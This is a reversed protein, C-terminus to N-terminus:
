GRGRSTLGISGDSGHPRAIDQGHVMIDLMPEIHTTGVAHRRSGVFGRIRAIIQDTSLVEARARASRDIMGNFTFGGRVLWPLVEGPGSHAMTLHAAVERVRWGECLSPHDWQEPSLGDLLDCLSARQEDITAWVEDVDM